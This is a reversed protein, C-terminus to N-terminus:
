DFKIDELVLQVSTHGNYTNMQPRYAISFTEAELVKKELHGMKFGICRLSATDDTVALQLHAQKAGVRKPPAIINVNRSALIPKPNGQGFPELLELEKVAAESLQKLNAQADIQLIAEMEQDDANEKAYQEFKERMLQINDKEIKLGAAKKHGGFSELLECCSTLADYMDFGNFSRASGQGPNASSNILVAPRCYRETIRSAVIGVVGTHWNESDLVITRNDPHNLNHKKVLECAEKFIKQELQRRQQNQQKLYRAIDFCRMTSESTLLEVALRAHGMRGAANLLPALRFGIHYSELQQGTLGASEILARLGLMNTQALTKLGYSTLTRNEGTLEVVDAVTGMAALTTANLLFERLDPTIQKGKKLKNCIAWALKFAVMAGASNPNEFNEDLLPHVIAAANPLQPGPRHHDTIIVDMGLSNALEVEKSATIGCDVTVMLKTGAGALEEIAQTNLGYGEDIRHPIYFESKGGLMELLKTLIAVSTIGDVDYDGYIAIPEDDKIAKVIREVAPAMGPTKEPQILDTLKPTLFSRAHKEENIKRNLLLQATLQSVGLKEALETADPSAPALEWIRRQMGASLPM